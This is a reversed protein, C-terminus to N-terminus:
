VLDHDPFPQFLQSVLLGLLDDRFVLELRDHTLHDELFRLRPGRVGDARSIVLCPEKFTPSGYVPYALPQGDLYGAEADRSGPLGALTEDLLGAGGNAGWYPLSLADDAGLRLLVATRRTALMWARSGDVQARQIAVRAPQSSQM